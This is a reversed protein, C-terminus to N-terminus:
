DLALHHQMQVVQTSWESSRAFASHKTLVLFDFSAKPEATFNFAREIEPAQHYQRVAQLTVFTTYVMGAPVKATVDQFVGDAKATFNQFTGATKAALNLLMETAEATLNLLTFAALNLLM